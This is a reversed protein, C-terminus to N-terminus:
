LRNIKASAQRSRDRLGTDKYPGNCESVSPRRPESKITPPIRNRTLTGARENASNLRSSFLGLSACRALPAAAGIRARAGDRFQQAACAGCLEM